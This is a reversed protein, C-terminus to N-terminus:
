VMEAKHKNFSIENPNLRAKKMIVDALVDVVRNTKGTPTTILVTRM